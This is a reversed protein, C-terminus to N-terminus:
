RWMGRVAQSEAYEDREWGATMAADGTGLRPQHLSAPQVFPLIPAAGLLPLSLDAWSCLIM